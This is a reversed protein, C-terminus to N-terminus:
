KFDVLEIDFIIPTNPDISGSGYQGYALGSPLIITAKGKKNLLQLGEAFGSVVGNVTFKVVDTGTTEDFVKGDLFYGKYKVTVSDTPGPKIGDANGEDTIKYYLSTASVQYEDKIGKNNLYENIKIIDLALQDQYTFLKEKKCSFLALFSLNILILTKKMLTYKQPLFVV